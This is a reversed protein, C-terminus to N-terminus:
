SCGMLNYNGLITLQVDNVVSQQAVGSCQYRGAHNFDASGIILNHQDSRTMDIKYRSRMTVIIDEGLYINTETSSNWSTYTWVVSDNEKVSCNLKVGAGLAVVSSSGIMSSAMVYNSLVVSIQIFSCKFSGLIQEQSISKIRGDRLNIYMYMYRSLIQLLNM